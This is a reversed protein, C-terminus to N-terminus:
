DEAGFPFSGVLRGENDFWCCRKEDGTLEHWEVPKGEWIVITDHHVGAWRVDALMTQLTTDFDSDDAPDPRELEDELVNRGTVTLEFRVPEADVTIASIEDGITRVFRLKPSKGTAELTRGVMILDGITSEDTFTFIGDRAAATMTSSRRLPKYVESM